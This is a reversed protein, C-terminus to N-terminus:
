TKWLLEINALAGEPDDKHQLFLGQIQAATVPRDQQRVRACFKQGGEAGTEPYFRTFMKELQYDTAHAIKEKVDVRGPRILAADLREIYNTTMFIIRAEASAVGDLANLLGSLTLRGMGQYMTPNDKALDRNLFAADIDELLIISQEPATTLLHNLRDDSMGRDNLNMLCISYDLQGALATIYSSKGCGPPGYLLYGRRYPIGRDYYWKPNQIFEKIDNLIKESVGQDLVVSEIPRKRRPFGFPIWDAGMPTYMVTRGEESVLALNRAEELIDLFLVKNIGLATLTVSEYPKGTQLSMASKEVSREVRIWNNKYWFLHIGPSPILDFKTYVRGTETQKFTTEVSVHHTRTGYATIWNLLWHYSKDRNPIEMTIMCNRRFWVLGFQGSKRLLSAAFGVGFLGFGAGFYPNDGLSSIYDSLPM